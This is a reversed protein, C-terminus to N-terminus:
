GRARAHRVHPYAIADKFEADDGLVRQFDKKMQAM